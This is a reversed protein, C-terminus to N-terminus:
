ALRSHKRLILHPQPSPTFWATPVHRGTQLLEHCSPGVADCLISSAVTFLVLLRLSALIHVRPKDCSPTTQAFATASGREFLTRACHQAHTTALRACWGHYVPTSVSMFRSGAVPAPHPLGPRQAPVCRTQLKWAQDASWRQRCLMLGGMRRGVHLAGHPDHRCPLRSDLVDSLVDDARRRETYAPYPALYQRQRKAMWAELRERQAGRQAGEQEDRASVKGTKSSFCFAEVRPMIAVAVRSSAQVSCLWWPPRLRSGSM